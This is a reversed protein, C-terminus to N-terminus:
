REEKNKIGLGHVGPSMIGNPDLSKKVSKFLEFAQSHSANSYKNWVQGRKSPIMGSDFLITQLEENAQRGKEMEIPDREDWYFMVYVDFSNLVNFAGFRYPFGYKKHMRLGERKIMDLYNGIGEMPVFGGIIVRSGLSFQEGPKFIGEYGLQAYDHGLDEGGEAKALEEFIEEEVLATRENTAIIADLRPPDHLSTIIDMSVIHLGMRKAKIAVREAEQHSQFRYAFYITKEPLPVIRFAIETIVGMTGESGIFLGTLDPMGAYRAFQGNANPNAGASGTVVVDGNPLVVKLGLVLDAISGYLASGWSGVGSTALFGGVTAVLASDPFAPFIYGEKELEQILTGIVACCEVICSDSKKDIHLIKNMQTLDLLIGGASPVVGGAYSIGAGRVYIPIKNSNAVQLIAQVETTTRPKIAIDPLHRPFIGFDKSYTWRVHEADSIFDTGVIDELNTYIEKNLKLELV